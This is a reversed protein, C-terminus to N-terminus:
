PSTCSLRKPISNKRLLILDFERPQGAGRRSTRTVVAYKPDCAREWNTLAPNMGKVLKLFEGVLASSTELIPSKQAMGAIILVPEAVDHAM